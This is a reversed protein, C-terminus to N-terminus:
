KSFRKSIAQEFDGLSIETTEFQVTGELKELLRSLLCGSYHIDIREKAQQNNEDQNLLEYTYYDVSQDTLLGIFGSFYLELYIQNKLYSIFEWKLRNKFETFLEDKIEDIQVSSRLWKKLFDEPFELSVAEALKEKFDLKQIESAYIDAYKQLMDSIRKRFETEDIGDNAASFFIQKFFDENLEPLAKRGVEKVELTFDGEAKFTEVEEPTLRLALKRQAETPFIKELSLSIRDGIKAGLFAAQEEAPLDAIEITTPRKFTEDLSILTGIITDQAETEEPQSYQAMQKRLSDIKKDIDADTISVKWTNVRVNALISEDFVPEYAIEYSFEFESQTNWDIPNQTSDYIPSVLLEINEDKLYANLNKSAMETVETALVSRGYMKKILGVPVKGPRFGKIVAKKATDKIKKEVDSQYDAENIKVKILANLNDIKDLTIEV